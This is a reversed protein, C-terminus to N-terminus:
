KADAVHKGSARGILLRVFGSTSLSRCSRFFRELYSDHVLSGTALYTGSNIGLRCCCHLSTLIFEYFKAALNLLTERQDMRRKMGM